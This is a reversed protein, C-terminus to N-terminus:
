VADFAAALGDLLRAWGPPTSEPMPARLSLSEVLAVSDGRLCPIGDADADPRLTVCDGVEVVFRVDPDSGEVAYRGAAVPGLGLGLAPSVAAAYQLCSRVEDPEAAAPLGLPIAIDREHVWSDWLAHQAMVQISVHGPPAEGLRSWDDEDLGAAVALLADNSAVFQALVEQPSLPGLSEVLAPPTAAPDFGALYRTPAGELAAGLALHWFANVGAVHAVVDRVTWAECRSPVQWQEDTLGALTSAMRRRQRTLPALQEGPAGEVALITPGDYRPSLRM